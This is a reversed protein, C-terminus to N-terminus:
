SKDLAAKLFGYLRIENIESALEAIEDAVSKLESVMPASRLLHDGGITVPVGDQNTGWMSHLLENRKDTAKRCRTLLADIRVLTPGEGIRKKVLSRVRTRLERSSQRDTADLAEKVSLGEITKVTMRLMHDLQAHRIAVLGIAEWLDRDGPLAISIM